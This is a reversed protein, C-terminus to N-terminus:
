SNIEFSFPVDVKAKVYKAESYDLRLFAKPKPKYDEGCAVCLLIIILFLYRGM